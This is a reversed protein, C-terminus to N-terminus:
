CYGTLLTSHHVGGGLRARRSHLDNVHVHVAQTRAREVLRGYASYM